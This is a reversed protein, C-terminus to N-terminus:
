VEQVIGRIEKIKGIKKTRQTKEAEETKKWNKNRSDKKIELPRKIRKYYQRM